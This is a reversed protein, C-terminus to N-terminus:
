WDSEYESDDGSAYESGEESYYQSDEGSDTAYGQHRKSQYYEEEDDEEERRRKRRLQALEGDASDWPHVAHEKVCVAYIQLSSAHRTWYGIRDNSVFRDLRM